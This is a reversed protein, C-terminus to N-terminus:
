KLSFGCSGAGSEHAKQTIVKDYRSKQQKTHEETRKESWGAKDETSLDFAVEVVLGKKVMLCLAYNGVNQESGQKSCM